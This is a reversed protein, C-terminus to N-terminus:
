KFLKVWIIILGVIFFPVLVLIINIKLYKHRNPGPSFKQFLVTIFLIVVTPLTFLILFYATASGAMCGANNNCPDMSAGIAFIVFHLILPVIFNIFNNKFTHLM